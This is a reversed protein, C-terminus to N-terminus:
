HHPQGDRKERQRRLEVRVMEGLVKRLEEGIGTRGIRGMMACVDQCAVAPKVGRETFFLFLREAEERIVAADNVTLGSELERM